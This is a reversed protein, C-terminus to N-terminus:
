SALCQDEHEVFGPAGQLQSPVRYDLSQRQCGWELPGRWATRLWHVWSWHPHQCGIEIILSVELDRLGSSVETLTWIAYYKCREVPGFLQFYLIRYLLSKKSFEPERAFAAYYFKPGFVVFIALYFLGLGMRTYAARKRYSPMKRGPKIKPRVDPHNFM